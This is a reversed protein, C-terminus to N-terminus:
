ALDKLEKVKALKKLAQSELQRVRERTLGLKDGIAQLTEEEGTIFGNRMLIVEQERPTLVKKIANMIVRKTDNKSAVEDPTESEEDAIFDQLTDDTESNLPTEMSVVQSNNIVNQMNEVSKKSIKMVSAIQEATASEGGNALEIQSAVKKMKAINEKLYVPKRIMDNKNSIANGINQKIWWTAYTSFKYGKSIDYKDYAQLLGLNGEQILDMLQLHQAQYKKAISVVLRLNCNIIEARAKKDGSKAKAFLTEEEEKTLVRFKSIDNLYSKLASTTEM